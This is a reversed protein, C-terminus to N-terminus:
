HNVAMAAFLLCLKSVFLFCFVILKKIIFYNITTSCRVRLGRTPPELGGRTM